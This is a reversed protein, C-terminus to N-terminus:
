PSTAANDAVDRVVEVLRDMDYPTFVHCGSLDQAYATAVDEPAEVVIAVDPYSHRLRRLVERNSSESIELDHVVIDADDLLSCGTGDVAPCMGGPLSAPGACYTVDFGAHSLAAVQAEGARRDSNEVLVRTAPPSTEETM